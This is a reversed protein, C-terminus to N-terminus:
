TRICKKGKELEGREMFNNIVFYIFRSSYLLGSRPGFANKGWKIKPTNMQLLIFLAFSKKKLRRVSSATLMIQNTIYMGLFCPSSAPHINRPLLICMGLVAKQPCPVYVLFGGGKGM